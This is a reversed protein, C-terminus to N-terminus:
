SRLLYFMGSGILALSLLGVRSAPGYLRSWGPRRIAAHIAFVLCALGALLLAAGVVAM